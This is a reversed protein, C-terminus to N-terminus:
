KSFEKRLKQLLNDLEEQDMEGKTKSTVYIILGMNGMNFM